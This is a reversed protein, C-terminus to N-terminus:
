LRGYKRGGITSASSPFQIITEDPPEFDRLTFTRVRWRLRPLKMFFNEGWSERGGRGESIINEMQQM